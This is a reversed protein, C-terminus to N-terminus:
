RSRFSVAVQVFEAGHLVGVIGPGTYRGVFRFPDASQRRYTVSLSDARRTGTITLSEGGPNTLSALTGTGTVDSDRRELTMFLVQQRAVLDAAWSEHSGAEIGSRCTTAALILVPGVARVIRSMMFAARYGPPAHCM